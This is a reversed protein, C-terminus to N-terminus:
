KIKKYKMLLQKYERFENLCKQKHIDAYKDAEVELPHEDYGHKKLLRDYEVNNFYQTHHIYEHIFTLIFTGINRCENYYIIIKRNDYEGWLDKEKGKIISVKPIGKYKPVGFMDVCYNLCFTGLERRESIKLKNIDSYHGYKSMIIDRSNVM